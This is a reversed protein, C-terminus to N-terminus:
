IHGKLVKWLHNSVWSIDMKGHYKGVYDNSEAREESIVTNAFVANLGKGAKFVAIPSDVTATKIRDMIVTLSLERM